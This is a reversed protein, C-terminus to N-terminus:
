SAELQRAAHLAALVARNVDAAGLLLRDAHERIDFLSSSEIARVLDLYPLFPGGQGLLAQAVREPVPVSELLGEFPQRLMRDLLSFVGCIFMEGRLEADGSSRVLEEMLLGRRVAAFMVPRMSADKSASALLLALWRKLRQHGLLMLAHGFSNIEVSLGFAPSNIYRMLRFALTPDRKLIGELRDVPLERDVGSILEMIVQLDPPVTPRGKPPPLADDIPWGLVAVAGRQFAADLDATTRVGSQVSGISSGGPPPTPDSPQQALDVIALSFCSLLDRPLAVLPRGSLMMTRGAAHLAELTAAMSPQAALFAPVEIMVNPPPTAAMVAQLLREGAINLCVRSAGGAASPAAAGKAAPDIERLTLSLELGPDPFVECIAGILAGADPTADPRGPFVTIRTAVVARQRDIMPCYGLAVQGLVPHDHMPIFRRARRAAGM